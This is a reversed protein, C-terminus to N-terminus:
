KFSIPTGVAFHNASSESVQGSWVNRCNILGFSSSSVWKSKSGNWVVRDINAIDFYSESLPNKDPAM